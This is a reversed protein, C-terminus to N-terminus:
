FRKKSLFSPMGNIKTPIRYSLTFTLLYYVDNSKSYQSTYADLYDSFTYRGGLEFGFIYEPFALVNLGIGVPIVGTYGSDPFGKSALLANEKVNFALGGIGTFAYIDLSSMLTRFRSGGRGKTYLYSNEKESKIFYYEGTLAQEFFLTSAEMGRTENSGRTDTAHFMGFSLGLKVSVNSLIRYKLAGEINFRTQRFSIDKLGLINVTKSFGGIDGFFQSTGLGAIAEMRKRKFLEQSKAIGAFLFFILLITLNRKM